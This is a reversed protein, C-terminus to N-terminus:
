LLRQILQQADFGVRDVGVGAPSEISLVFPKRFKCRFRTSIDILAKIGHFDFDATHRNGIVDLALSGFRLACPVRACRLGALAYLVPQVPCVRVRGSCM